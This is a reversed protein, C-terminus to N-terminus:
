ILKINKKLQKALYKNLISLSKSITMHHKNKTNFYLVLDYLREVSKGTFICFIYIISPKKYYQNLVHLNCEYKHKLFLHFANYYSVYYQDVFSYIHLVMDIPLYNM